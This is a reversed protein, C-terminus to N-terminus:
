QNGRLTIPLYRPQWIKADILPELEEASRPTAVGDRAAADAVALAIARAVERSEALAPLLAAVRDRGSTSYAALSRAAAMFM